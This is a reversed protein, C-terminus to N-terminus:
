SLCVTHLRSLVHEFAHEFRLEQEFHERAGQAYHEYNAFIHAAAAVIDEASDIPVGSHYTHLWEDWGPLRTVIVPLGSQLYQCLKGSSKGMYFINPSELRSYLAIGIDASNVLATLASTELVGRSILLKDNHALLKQIDKETSASTISVHFVLKWHAPFQQSARALAEAGTWSGITGAYLLVKDTNDLHFQEHLWRSRQRLAAGLPANPLFAFREMPIHNDEAMRRARMEDQIIILAARRSFWTEPIDYQRYLRTPDTSINLELSYYVLPRRALLALVAAQTLGIADVGIFCSSKRTRCVAWTLITFLVVSPIFRLM